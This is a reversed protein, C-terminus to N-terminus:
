RWDGVLIFAAWHSPDNPYKKRLELTAQKFAFAEAKLKGKTSSWTQQYFDLMWEKTSKANVSWLTLLVSSAGAYLLARSLGVIEDGRGVENIGTQCASLTVLDTQLKLEMWQRATFKGDALEVSSDLPNKGYFVAFGGHCSLHIHHANPAYECLTHINADSGLYPHCGFQSAVAKAEELFDPNDKPEYGMVLASADARNELANQLTRALVAMSPAYAVAYHSIFPKDDQVTLSHLPIFHLLDHPVFYVLQASKLASELPVLLEKGLELWRHHKEPAELGHREYEEKYQWVEKQYSQFYRHFFVQRSIPLVFIHPKEWGARLIFVAIKDELIYFEVLAVEEGLSSALQTLEEWTPSKARRLNVYEQAEPYECSLTDWFKELRTRIDQREKAYQEIRTSLNTSVLQQEKQYLQDLLAQEEKLRHEPVGPPLPFNSLGMQDLFTRAKGSEAYVLAKRAFDPNDRLQLCINVLHDCLTTNIKIEEQQNIPIFASSYMLEAARHALDYADYALDWKEQKCYLDGLLMATLRCNFPATDSTYFRLAEKSYNIAQDINELKQNPLENSLESYAVGLNHLSSAYELPLAPTRFRLTEKLCKIAEKLNEQRNTTLEGYAIGLNHKTLAYKLPATEPKYVRLAEKYFKIAQTLNDELGGPLNRYLEGLNTLTMGYGRPAINPNLFQRAERFYSIAQTVDFESSSIRSLESYALGLTSLTLGYDIPTIEPNRLRLAEQCYKIVQRLNYLRDGIPLELYNIGLNFLILARFLPYKDSKLQELIREYVKISYSLHEPYGWARAEPSRFGRTAEVHQLQSIEEQFDPPIEVPEGEEVIEFQSSPHGLIMSLDPYRRLLHKLFEQNKAICSLEPNTLWLTLIDDDNGTVMVTLLKVAQEASINISDFDPQYLKREPEVAIVAAIKEEYAQAIGVERCRILVARIEELKRGTREDQQNNALSQLFPDIKKDLLEEKHQEVIWQAERLTPAKVLAKILHLPMLLEELIKQIIAWQEPYAEKTYVRLANKYCAIAQEFNSAPEGQICQRYADGLFLQIDAWSEPFTTETFVHVAKQYYFIAQELNKERDGLIRYFYAIGLCKQTEAWQQPFEPYTYVRLANQYCQIGQEYNEAQEGHIRRCFASGLNHQSMAWDVPFNDKTFVQLSNQFCSIAMELNDEPEGQIRDLYAKGLNNYTAAWLGPSTNPTIVQLAEQYYDIALELNKAREGRIRDGYTIGLISQIAARRQPIIGPTFVKLAQQCATMAIELNIARDGFPCQQLLLGFNGLTSASMLAQDSPVLFLIQNTWDKLIQVLTDDLKDLNERLLPYLAQPKGQSNETEKLVQILFNIYAAQSKESM